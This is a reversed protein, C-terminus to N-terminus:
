WSIDSLLNQGAISPHFCDKPSVHSWQFRVTALAPHFRVHNPYAAAVDRITENAHEWRAHFAKRKEATVERGLLPQCISFKEWVDYCYPQSQSIEWLNLLNPIAAVVITIEDNAKVLREFARRLNSAFAQRQNEYDENWHCVDNAGITITVYNPKHRLLRLAQRDLDAAVSGVIAENYSAVPLGQTEEIRRLHSKLGAATGTSWSYERNDGFRQANFGTSISDGLAGVVVREDAASVASVSIGVSCALIFRLM